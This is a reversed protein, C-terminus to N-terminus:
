RAAASPVEVLPHAARDFSRWLAGITQRETPHVLDPALAALPGLMYARKLLDPRPLKLHPEECVLDGYLLVDLDMSRPAWRPAERPRGCLAEIAHLRALVEGVALQTAFGAVFNIFDEGEFGVATNRYWPSFRVPGFQRELERAATALHREPEINSGAAVYVQPM